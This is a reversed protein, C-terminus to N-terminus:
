EASTFGVLAHTLLSAFASDKSRHIALAEVVFTPLLLLGNRFRYGGISVAAKIRRNHQFLRRSAGPALITRM